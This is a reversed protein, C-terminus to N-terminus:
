KAKKSRLKRNEEILGDHNAECKRGVSILRKEEAAAKLEAERSKEEAEERRAKREEIIKQVEEMVEMHEALEEETLVKSYIVLITPATEASGPLTSIHHILHNDRAEFYANMEDAGRFEVALAGAAHGRDVALKLKGPYDSPKLKENKGVQRNNQTPDVGGQVMESVAAEGQLTESM